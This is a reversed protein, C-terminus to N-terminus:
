WKYRFYEFYEVRREYEWELDNNYHKMTGFFRDLEDSYDIELDIQKYKDIIETLLGLFMSFVSVGVVLIVVGIMREADSRPAFDGFGVTSLTTFAFYIGLVSNHYASNNEIEYYSIFGDGNTKTFEEITM